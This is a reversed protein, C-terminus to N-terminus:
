VQVEQGNKLQGMIDALESSDFESKDLDQLSSNSITYSSFTRVLKFKKGPQDSGWNIQDCNKSFKNKKVAPLFRIKKAITELTVSQSKAKFVCRNTLSSIGKKKKERNWCVCKGKVCKGKFEDGDTLRNGCARGNCNIETEARQNTFHNNNGEDEMKAYSTMLTIQTCSSSGKSAIAKLERDKAYNTKKSSKTEDDSSSKGGEGYRLPWNVSQRTPITTQQTQQMEEQTIALAVRQLNGKISPQNNSTKINHFSALNVSNQDDYTLKNNPRPLTVYLKSKGGSKRKKESCLEILTSQFM